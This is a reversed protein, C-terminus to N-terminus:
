LRGRPSPHLTYSQNRTAKWIETAPKKKKNYLQTQIKIRLNIYFEFLTDKFYVGIVISQTSKKRAFYGRLHM